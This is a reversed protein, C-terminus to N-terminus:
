KLKPEMNQLSESRPRLELELGDRTESLDGARYEISYPKTIENGTALQQSELDKRQDATLGISAEREIILGSNSWIKLSHSFDSAELISSSSQSIVSLRQHNRSVLFM